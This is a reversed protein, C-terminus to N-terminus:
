GWSFLEIAKNFNKDKQATIAQVYAENVQNEDQKNGTENGGLSFLFLCILSSVITAKLYDKRSPQKKQGKSFKEPNIINILGTITLALFFIRFFVLM